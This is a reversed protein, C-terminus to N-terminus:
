KQHNIGTIESHSKQTTSL